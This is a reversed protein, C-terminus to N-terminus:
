ASSYLNSHGGSGEVRWIIFFFCSALCKTKEEQQQNWWFSSFPLSDPKAKESCAAPWFRAISFMHWLYSVGEPQTGLPAEVERGNKRWQITQKPHIKSFKQMHQQQKKQKKKIPSIVPSQFTKHWIKTVFCWRWTLSTSWLISLIYKDAPLMVFIASPLADRPVLM